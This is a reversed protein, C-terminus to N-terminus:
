RPQGLTIAAIRGGRLRVTAMLSGPGRDYLWEETPVCPVVSAAIADPVVHVTGPYYVAPCFADRLLPEGCKYVLSLRSDGESVIGGSCKMSQAAAPGAPLLAFLVAGSLLMAKM